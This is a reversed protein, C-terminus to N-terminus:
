PLPAAPQLLKKVENITSSRMKAVKAWYSRHSPKSRLHAEDESPSLVYIARQQYNQAFHPMNLVTIGRCELYRKISINSSSVM